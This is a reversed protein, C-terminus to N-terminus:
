RTSHFREYESYVTHNFQGDARLTLLQYIDRGPESSESLSEPVTFHAKGNPTKWVRQRAALPRPFGGPTFLRKNFDKFQEPYTAEIADRVLAYDDVWKDW